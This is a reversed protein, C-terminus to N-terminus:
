RKISIGRGALQRNGDQVKKALDGDDLTTLNIVVNGGSPAFAGIDTMLRRNENDSTNVFQFGESVSVSQEKPASTSGIQTSLIKKISNAGALAIKGALAANAPFPLDAFARQMGRATEIIVNSIQVAKNEGFLLESASRFSDVATDLYFDNLERKAELLAREGQLQDEAIEADVRAIALRAAEADGVKADLLDKEIQAIRELRDVGIQANRAEIAAIKNGAMEHADVEAQLANERLLANTEFDSRRIRQLVEREQREVAMIDRTLSMERIANERRLNNLVIEQDAVAQIQEETSSFMDNRTQIIELLDEANKIEKAALDAEAAGVQRLLALRDEFSENLDRSRERARALQANVLSREVGLEREAVKVANLARELDAADSVNRALERGFNGMGEIMGSFSIGGILGAVISTSNSIGTIAHIASDTMDQFHKKVGEANGRFADAILSALSTFIKGVSSVREKVIVVFANIAKRGAEFPDTLVLGLFERFKEFPEGLSKIVDFLREGFKISREAVTDFVAGLAAMAVRLAQQGRETRRFFNLLSTLAIIVLGIGATVLATRIIFGVATSTSGFAVMSVRARDVMTAFANLRGAIPGLPGQFVAIGNAAARISNTYDGVNRQYNGMSADITKLQQNYDSYEKTLASVQEKNEGLPDDINRIEISLAKMKQRIDEYSNGLAENAENVSIMERRQANLDGTVDKLALQIAIYEQEEDANLGSNEKKRANLESIQAKYLDQQQMLKAINAQLEMYKRSLEDLEVATEKRKKTEKESGAANSQQNQLQALAKAIRELDAQEPTFRVKFELEQSM